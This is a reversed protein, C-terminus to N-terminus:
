VVSPLIAVTMVPAWELLNLRYELTTLDINDPIEIM